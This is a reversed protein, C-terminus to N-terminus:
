ALYTFIYKDLIEDYWDAPFPCDKNYMKKMLYKTFAYADVEFSLGLKEYDKLKTYDKKLDEIWHKRLKKNGLKHEICIFQYYHRLEHILCKRAEITDNVLRDSIIIYNDNIMYRSDDELSDMVVPIPEVGLYNCIRIIDPWLKAMLEESNWKDVGFYKIFESKLEDNHKYRM